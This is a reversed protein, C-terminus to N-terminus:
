TPSVPTPSASARPGAPPVPLLHRLRPQEAPGSGNLEVATLDDGSLLRRGLDDLGLWERDGDGLRSRTVEDTIGITVASDELMYEIRDLPYSPDIPLFAARVQRYGRRHGVRRVPRARRRRRERCGCRARHAVPRDPQHRGRVGTYDLETDGCIVAPHDLDLDRRALLDILTGAEVINGPNGSTPDNTTAM